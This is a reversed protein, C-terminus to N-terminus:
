REELVLKLAKYYTIGQWVFNTEASQEKMHFEKSTLGLVPSEFDVWFFINDTIAFISQLQSASLGGLYVTLIHKRNVIDILMDGEANYDTKTNRAIRQTSCAIVGPLKYNNFFIDM